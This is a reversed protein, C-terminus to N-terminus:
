LSVGVHIYGQLLHFFITPPFLSRLKVYKVMKLEFNQWSSIERIWQATHLFGVATKIEKAPTDFDM